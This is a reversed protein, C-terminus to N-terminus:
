EAALRDVLKRLFQEGATIQSLDIFEDPQHAQDISGPGCVITSFGVEQFQGAETGYPVVSTANKGTLSKALEEAAGNHEPALAPAAFIPETVINAKESIAKMAPLVSACYSRFEELLAFPDDEPINRIDWEFYCERSIINVATGGHIIGVHITTYPPDFPSDAPALRKRDELMRNLHCVLEAATMVASVGKHIKSSHAELGTVTTRFGNIGKHANVVEMMTPEGVIVARPAPIIDAMERIMSPAGACGVEEDYSLAFHIPKKLGRELMEPVLSLGIASFSKMDATGRGYLRGDKELVKFPDSSWPQGEVPVVDTHGSLVVGGECSPGVTAYLNAKTGDENPVIRAEIGLGGLYDRVFDILPMNSKSSVTDFSVLKEIMERATYRVSGQRKM